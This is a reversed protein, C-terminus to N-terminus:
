IVVHSNQVNEQATQVMFQVDLYDFSSKFQVESLAYGVSLRVFPQRDLGFISSSIYNHHFWSQWILFLLVVKSL